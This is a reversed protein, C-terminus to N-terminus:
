CTHKALHQHWDRHYLLATIRFGQENPLLVPKNCALRSLHMPFTVCFYCSDDNSQHKSSSATPFSSIKLRDKLMFQLQIILCPTEVKTKFLGSQKMDLDRADGDPDCLFHLQARLHLLSSRHGCHDAVSGEEDQQVLLCM